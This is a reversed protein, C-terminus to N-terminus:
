QIFSCDGSEVSSKYIMPGGSSTMITMINKNNNTKIFSYIEIRADPYQILLAKEFPTNRILKISGGDNTVSRVTETADIYTIDFTGNENKELTFTGSSSGVQWGSNSQNIPGVNAYYPHDIKSSCSALVEAHALPSLLTFSAILHIIKTISSSFTTKM